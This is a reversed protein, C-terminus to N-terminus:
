ITWGTMRYMSRSPNTPHAEHRITATPNFAGEPEFVDMKQIIQNAVDKPNPSLPSLILDPTDIWKMQNAELAKWCERYLDGVPGQTLLAMAWTQEGRSNMTVIESELIVLCMLRDHTGNPCNWGADRFEQGIGFYIQRIRLVAENDQLLSFWHLNAGNNREEPIEFRPKRETLMGTVLAAVLALVIMEIIM